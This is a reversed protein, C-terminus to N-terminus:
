EDGDFPDSGQTIVPVGSEGDAVELYVDGDAVSVEEIAVAGAIADDDALTQYAAEDAAVVVYNEVNMAGTAVGTDAFTVTNVNPWGVADAEAKTTPLQTDEDVQVIWVRIAGCDVEDCENINTVTVTAPDVCGVMMMTAFLLCLSMFRKM